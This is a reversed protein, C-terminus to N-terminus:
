QISYSKMTSTEDKKRNKLLYWVAGIIMVVLLVMDVPGLLPESAAAAPVEGTTEPNAEM